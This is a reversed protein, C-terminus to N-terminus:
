TLADALCLKSGYAGSNQYVNYNMKDNDEWGIVGSLNGSETPYETFTVVPDAVDGGICRLYVANSIVEPIILYHSGVMFGYSSYGGTYGITRKKTMNTATTGTYIHFSTVNYDATIICYEGNYTGAALPQETSTFSYTGAETTGNTTVGASTWTSGKRYIMFSKDLAGTVATTSSSNPWLPTTLTWTAGDDTSKWWETLEGNNKAWLTSGVQWFWGFTLTGLAGVTKVNSWSSGGNTSRYIYRTTSINAMCLVTGSSTVLVATPNAGGPLSGTIDTWSAGFNTTKSLGGGFLGWVAYGIQGYGSMMKSWSGLTSTTFNDLNPCNSEGVLDSSSYAATTHGTKALIISMKKSTHSFAETATRGYYENVDEWTFNSSLTM